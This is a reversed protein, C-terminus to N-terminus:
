SRKRHVGLERPLSGWEREIRRRARFIWTKVQELSAGLAEAIDRYALGEFERLVLASREHEPLRAVIVALRERTEAREAVVSGESEPPAPLADDLLAPTRRGRQTDVALNRVLRFFFAAFRGRQADYGGNKAAGLLRIFSEQAVDEAEHRDGLIHKAFRIAGRAHRDVLADFASDDGLRYKRVLDEDTDGDSPNM